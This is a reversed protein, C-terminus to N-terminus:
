FWSGHHEAASLRATQQAGAPHPITELPRGIPSSKQGEVEQLRLTGPLAGVPGVRAPGVEGGSCTLVWQQRSEPPNPPKFSTGVGARSHCGAAEKAAVHTGMEPQQQVLPHPPDTEGTSSRAKDGRRPNQEGLEGPTPRGLDKNQSVARTSAPDRSAPSPRPPGAVPGAQPHGPRAAPLPPYIDQGCGRSPKVWLVSPHFHFHRTARTHLCKHLVLNRHAKQFTM